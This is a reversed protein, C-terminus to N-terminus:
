LELATLNTLGDFDGRNIQTLQNNSLDLLQLKKLAAFAGSPITKIQSCALNLYTLNTLGDFDSPNIQTLQNNSLHLKQLKELAAFAGSQIAQIQSYSLDLSTLNTLGDFDGRKIQILKNHRLSLCELQSLKVFAGAELPTFLNHCIELTDIETFESLNDLQLPMFCKSHVILSLQDVKAQLWDKQLQNLATELGCLSDLACQANLRTMPTIIERHLFPNADDTSKGVAIIGERLPGLMRHFLELVKPKTSPASEYDKDIAEIFYQATQKGTFERKAVKWMAVNNNERIAQPMFPDSLVLNYAREYILQQVENPLQSLSDNGSSITSM